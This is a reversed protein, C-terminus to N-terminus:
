EFRGTTVSGAVFSIGTTPLLTGDGTPPANTGIDWQASCVEGGVECRDGSYYIYGRPDTPLPYTTGVKYYTIIPGSKITTFASFGFAIGAVLVGLAAKKINNM